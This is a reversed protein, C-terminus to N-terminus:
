KKPVLRNAGRAPTKGGPTTLTGGVSGDVRYHDTARDYVITEGAQDTDGFRSKIRALNDKLGYLRVLKGESQIVEGWGEYEENQLYANGYAHM